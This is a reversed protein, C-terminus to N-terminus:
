VVKELKKKVEAHIICRNQWCHLMWKCQEELRWSVSLTNSTFAYHFIHNNLLISLIHLLSTMTKHYPAQIYKIHLSIMVTHFWMKSRYISTKM